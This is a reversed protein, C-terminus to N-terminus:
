AFLTEEVDVFLACAAVGLNLSIKLDHGQFDQGAITLSQETFGCGSSANFCVQCVHVPKIIRMRCIETEDVHVPVTDVFYVKSRDILIDM